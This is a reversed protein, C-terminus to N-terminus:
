GRAEKKIEEVRIQVLVKGLKVYIWGATCDVTQGKENHKEVMVRVRFM